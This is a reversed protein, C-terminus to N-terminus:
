AGLRTDVKVVMRKVYWRFGSRSCETMGKAKAYAQGKSFTAAYEIDKTYKGYPRVYINVGRDNCYIIYYVNYWEDAKIFLYEHGQFRTHVARDLDINYDSAYVKLADMTKFKLMKYPSMDFLSIGAYWLGVVKHQEYLKRLGEKSRHITKM